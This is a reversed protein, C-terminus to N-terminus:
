EITYNGQKDFEIAVGIGVDTVPISISYHILISDNGLKFSPYL